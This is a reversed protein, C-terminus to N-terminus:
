MVGHVFAVCQNNCVEKRLGVLVSLTEGDFDTEFETDEGGM